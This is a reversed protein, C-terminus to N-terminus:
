IRITLELTKIFYRQRKKYFIDLVEQRIGSRSVNRKVEYFVRLILIYYMKGLEEEYVSM